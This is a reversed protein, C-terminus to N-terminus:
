VKVNIPIHTTQTLAALAHRACVVTIKPQTATSTRRLVRTLQWFYVAM